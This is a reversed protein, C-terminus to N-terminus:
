QPEPELLGFGAGQPDAILAFRGVGPIPTAPQQIRAGLEEAKAVTEDCNEVAFYVLFFSPMGPTPSTMVGCAPQDGKKMLIYRGGTAAPMEEANWGFLTSFFETTKDADASVCETWTLTNPENMVESGINDKPQWLCFFAGSPETVVSMRGAEFVDFPGAHIVGGASELEKTRTDVDDVTFYSSWMPPVGAEAQQSPQLSAAATTKGNKKFMAYVQGPGMPQEDVGWGFLSTYFAKAAELDTTQLDSYSFTAEEHRTIEPM